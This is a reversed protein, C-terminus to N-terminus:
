YGRIYRRLYGILIAGIMAMITGGVVENSGTVPTLKKIVYYSARDNDSLNDNRAEIQNTQKQIGDDKVGAIRARITYTKSEQPALSDIKWNIEQKNKDWDGPNFILDLYQPLQDDVVIDDLQENSDNKITIIFEILEEEAWIKQQRSINDYTGDKNIERIKKDVILRPGSVATEYQALCAKFQGWFAMVALVIVLTKLNVKM